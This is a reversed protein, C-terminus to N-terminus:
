CRLWLQEVHIDNLTYKHQTLPWLSSITRHPHVTMLQQERGYWSTNSKTIDYNSHTPSMHPIYLRPNPLTARVRLAAIAAPCPCVTRPRAQHRLTYQTKKNQPSMRLICDTSERRKVLITFLSRRSRPAAPPQPQAGYAIACADHPRPARSRHLAYTSLSSLKEFSRHTLPSPPPSLMTAAPPPPSLAFTQM